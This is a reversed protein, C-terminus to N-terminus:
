SLWPLWSKRQNVRLPPLHSPQSQCSPGRESAIQSLECLDLPTTDFPLPIIGSIGFSVLLDIAPTSLLSQVYCHHYFTTTTHNCIPSRSIVNNDLYQQSFWHSSYPLSYIPDSVGFISKRQLMMPTYAYITRFIWRCSLNWGTHPLTTTMWDWDCYKLFHSFPIRNLMTNIVKLYWMHLVQDLCINMNPEICHMSTHPDILLSYQFVSVMLIWWHYVCCMQNALLM